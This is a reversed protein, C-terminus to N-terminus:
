VGLNPGPGTTLPVTSGCEYDVDLATHTGSLRAGPYVCGEGQRERFSQIYSQLMYLFLMILETPGYVQQGM